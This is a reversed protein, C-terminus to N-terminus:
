EAQSQDSSWCTDGYTCIIRDSLQPPLIGNENQLKCTCQCVEETLPGTRNETKKVCISDGDNAGVCEGSKGGEGPLCSDTVTDCLPGEHSDDCVCTGYEKGDITERDTCREGFYTGMCLNCDAKGCDAGGFGDKCSCIESSTGDCKYNNGCKGNHLDVKARDPDLLPTHLGLSNVQSDALILHPRGAAQSTKSLLVNCAEVKRGYILNVANPDSCDNSPYWSEGLQCPNTADSINECVNDSTATAKYKVMFGTGCPTIQECSNSYINFYM